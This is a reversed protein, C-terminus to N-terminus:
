VSWGRGIGFSLACWKVWKPKLKSSKRWHPIWVDCSWASGNQSCSMTTVGCRKVLLSAIWSVTVKLWTNTWYTRVFRCVTNRRNRYSCEHSGSPVFEAINWCQWCQNWRISLLIWLCNGPWLLRSIQTSSCISISKMKHQSLRAHGDLVHSTKWTVTVVTSVYWGGGWRTLTWQKTEVFM